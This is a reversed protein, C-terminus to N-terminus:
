EYRKQHPPVASIGRAISRARLDLPVGPAMEDDVAAAGDDGSRYITTGECACVDLQTLDADKGTGCEAIMAAAGASNEIDWRKAIGAIALSQVPTAPKPLHLVRRLEFPLM